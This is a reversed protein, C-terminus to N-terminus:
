IRYPARQKSVYNERLYFGSIVLDGGVSITSGKRYTIIQTELIWESNKQLGNCLFLPPCSMNDFHDSDRKRYPRTHLFQATRSKVWLLKRNETPPLLHLEKYTEREGAYGQCQHMMIPPLENDLWVCWIPHARFLQLLMSCGLTEQDLGWVSSRSGDDGYRMCGLHAERPDAKM